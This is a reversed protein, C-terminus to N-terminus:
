RVELIKCHTYYIVIAIKENTRRKYKILLNQIIFSIMVNTSYRKKVSTSFNQFNIEKGIIGIKIKLRSIPVFITTNCRFLVSYGFYTDRLWMADYIHKM